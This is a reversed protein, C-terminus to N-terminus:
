RFPLHRARVCLVFGSSPARCLTITGELNPPDVLRSWPERNHRAVIFVEGGFSPRMRYSFFPSHTPGFRGPSAIVAGSLPDTFRPGTDPTDKSWFSSTLM